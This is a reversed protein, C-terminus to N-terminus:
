EKMVNIVIDITEIAESMEQESITLPPCMRVVTEHTTKCLLGSKFCEHVFRIAQDSRHFEIANMLGVGRIEKIIDGKYKELQRRFLDGMIVANEMLKEEIVIDIAEMAIKAALPNGGYTSGHMGPKMFEMVHNDTLIASMPLMGGTLAKGLIIIDARNEDCPSALLNGTRGIGTQVEDCIMLVNYRTCLERVKQLYEPSPIIIGAEGQIPELMYAVINPNKKLCYELIEVNNYEILQFGPTYPGFNRYCEPDSSSSCATITRGWFNNFPLLVTAKNREVKKNQYGWLRALKIATEGGEVGTNMPLCKDYHFTNHMYEYFEILNENHFARSCLTLQACQEQMTKVLRPHCHGQNVSSYSSLFDYYKRGYIDELYIGYGKNLVVPLPAYNQAGHKMNIQMLRKMM